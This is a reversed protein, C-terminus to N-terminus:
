AHLNMFWVWSRKTRSDYQPPHADLVTAYYDFITHDQDFVTHSIEPYQTLPNLDFTTVNQDWTLETHDWVTQHATTQEVFQTADSDWTCTDSDWRTVGQWQVGQLDAQVRNITIQRGQYPNIVNQLNIQADTNVYTVALNLDFEDVFKYRVPDWERGSLDVLDSQQYGEGAHIVQAGVVGVKLRLTIQATGVQVTFPVSPIQTYSGPDIVTIRAAQDYPTVGDVLLVAPTGHGLDIEFQTLDTVGTDSTLVDAGLIGVTIQISAGSGLASIVHAPPAQFYNTGPNRVTVGTVGGNTATTQISVQAGSGVNQSWGLQAQIVRRMNSVCSPWYVNSTDSASTVRNWVVQNDQVQPQSATTRPWTGGSTGPQACVYTEGERMITQGVNYVHYAYWPLPSSKGSSTNPSSLQQWTIVGDQVQSTNWVPSVDSSTGSNLAQYQAGNSISVRQNIVYSTNPHWLPPAVADRLQVDLTNYASDPLQTIQLQGLQVCWTHMYNTILERLTDVACARTGGIIPVTPMSVRGWSPQNLLFVAQDVVVSTNNLRILESRADGWIPMHVNWYINRNLATVQVQFRQQITNVGDTAQIEFQYLKDQAHFEVFGQLFGTESDLRLGLPMIGGVWGYTINAGVVPSTAQVSLMSQVGDSTDPLQSSTIWTLQAAQQVVQISFTRTVIHIQDSVQVDFTFSTTESVVPAQGFLEGTISLSCWEPLNQSSWTIVVQDPDQVELVYSFLQSPTVSLLQGAPTLWIPSAERSVLAVQFTRSIMSVASAVCLLNLIVQTDTLVQNWVLAQGQYSWFVTGDSIYNSVGAPGTGSGSTGTQICLYIKGISNTVVTGQNYIRNPQWDPYVTDVVFPGSLQPGQTSSSTGSAICVYLKDNSYVYDKNQAYFTNPKWGLDMTFVGSSADLDIGKTLLNRNVYFYQVAQIPVSEAEIQALQPQDNYVYLLPASNPTVWEFVSVQQSVTIQFTRDSVYTQNSIRFTFSYSETVGVGQLEGMLLIQYGSQTFQVGPPLEGNLIQVTCPLLDTEGFVLSIPALTLSSGANFTGLNNTTVWFPYGM